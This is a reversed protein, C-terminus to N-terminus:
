PTLMHLSSDLRVERRKLCRALDIFTQKFSVQPQPQVTTGDEREVKEPQSLLLAVPVSLCQLAIFIIYTDVSDNQLDPFPRFLYFLLTGTGVHGRQGNKHNLALVIAGGIIPGITRWWVWISLM